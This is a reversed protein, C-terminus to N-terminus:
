LFTNILLHKYSPTKDNMHDVGMGIYSSTSNLNAGGTGANNKSVIRKYSLNLIQLDLVYMM